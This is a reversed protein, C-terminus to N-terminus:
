VSSISIEWMKEHYIHAGKNKYKKYEQQGTKPTKKKEMWLSLQILPILVRLEAWCKSAQKMALPSFDRIQFRARVDVEAVVPEDWHRFHLWSTIM